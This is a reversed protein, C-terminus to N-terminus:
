KKILISLLVSTLDRPKVLRTELSSNSILFHVSYAGLVAGILCFLVLVIDSNAGPILFRLGALVSALLAAFTISIITMNIYLMCILGVELRDWM